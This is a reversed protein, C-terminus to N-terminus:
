LKSFLLHEQDLLIQSILIRVLPTFINIAQPSQNKLFNKFWIHESSCHNLVLDSMLRYTKSIERIDEWDGLEKNVEKFAIVSFGDDSSYPFFPLIHIGNIKEEIYEDFFKKLTRLPLEENDIISNGYTILISDKESWNNIFAQDHQRRGAREQKSSIISKDLRMTKLLSDTIEYVDIKGLIFLETEQYIMKLHNHIQSKLKQEIDM